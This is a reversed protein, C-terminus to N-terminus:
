MKVYHSLLTLPWIVADLASKYVLFRVVKNISTDKGRAEGSCSWNSTNDWFKWVSLCVTIPRISVSPCVDNRCTISKKLVWNWGKELLCNLFHFLFCIKILMSIYCKREIKNTKALSYFSNIWCGFSSNLIIRKMLKVWLNKSYPKGNLMAIIQNSWM